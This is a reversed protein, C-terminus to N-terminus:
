EAKLVLVGIHQQLRLVEKKWWEADKQLEQIEKVKEDVIEWVMKNQKQLALADHQWRKTEETERALAEEDLKCIEVFHKVIEFKSMTTNEWNSAIENVTKGTATFPTLAETTVELVEGNRTTIEEM